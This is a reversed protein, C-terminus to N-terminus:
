PILEDKFKLAGSVDANSTFPKAVLAIVDADSVEIRKELELTKDTNRRVYGSAAKAGNTITTAGAGPGGIGEAFEWVSTDVQAWVLSGANAITPNVLISFFIDDNTQSLIDLLILELIRNDEGPALRLFILGYTNVTSSLTIQNTGNDISFTTNDEETLRFFFEQNALEDVYEEIDTAGFNPSIDAFAVTTPGQFFQNTTVTMQDLTLNATITALPFTYQIFTNTPSDQDTVIQKEVGNVKTIEYAM